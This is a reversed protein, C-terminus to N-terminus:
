RGMPSVCSACSRNADSSRGRRELVYWARWTWLGIWSLPFTWSNKLCGNLQLITETSPEHIACTDSPGSCQQRQMRTTSCSATAQRRNPLRMPHLLNCTICVAHMTRFLVCMIKSTHMATTCKRVEFLLVSNSGCTATLAQRLTAYAETEADGPKCM